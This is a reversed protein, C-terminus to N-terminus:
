LQHLRPVIFLRCDYGQIVGVVGAHICGKNLKEVKQLNAIDLINSATHLLGQLIQIDVGQVQAQQWCRAAHVKDPYLSTCTIHMSHHACATKCLLVAHTNSKSDLRTWHDASTEGTVTTATRTLRRNDLDHSKIGCLPSARQSWTM